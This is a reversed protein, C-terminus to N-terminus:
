ARAGQARRMGTSACRSAPLACATIRRRGFAAKLVAGIRTDAPQM